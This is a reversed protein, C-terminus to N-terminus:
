LYKIIQQKSLAGYYRKGDIEFSWNRLKVWITDGHYGLRPLYNEQKITDEIDM